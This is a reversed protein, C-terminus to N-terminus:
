QAQAAGLRVFLASGATFACLVDGGRARLLADGVRRPGDGFPWLYDDLVLWGGDRLMPLWAAVDAAVQAHEHNGDIHLLAIAGALRTEGFAESRAVPEARYRAAGQVSPLRLFNVRAPGLSLLSVRFIRAAEEHDAAASAADLADHSQRTGEASWPDVCLLAGIGHRAALWALAVASRGWWSGIEVVDGAPAHRAIAALAWLKADDCMGPVARTARLLAAAPEM